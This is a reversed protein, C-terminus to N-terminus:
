TIGVYDERMLPPSQIVELAKLFKFENNENRDYQDGFDDKVKLFIEIVEDSTGEFINGIEPKRTFEQM